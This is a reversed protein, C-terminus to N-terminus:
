QRLMGLAAGIAASFRSEQGKLRDPFAGAHLVLGEFPNWLVPKQGTTGEIEMGWLRLMAGGGGAFVKVVRTNERREVYDWSIILQQLFNEMAQHVIRSVDFSGENVIGTAVEQDVGLNDQLKKLITNAGFDFKRILSLAGRFYFSVLTVTAGCDIVAVCDDAHTIGLGKQYSTLSAVASIEISCPAPAGLPFLGCLSRATSDPLAVALVRSEVRTELVPEYAIRFESSNAIGMLALIQEDTSKGTHLPFTLLKIISGGQSTALAVYRAKLAKPVRSSFSEAAAAEPLVLAPLVDAAVLVAHGKIWKIRVVKTGSSGVDVGLVDSYNRKFVKILESLKTMGDVGNQEHLCELEERNNYYIYYWCNLLIASM